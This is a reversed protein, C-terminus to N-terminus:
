DFCSISLWNTKLIKFVTQSIVEKLTLATQDAGKSDCWGEIPLLPNKVMRIVFLKNQM